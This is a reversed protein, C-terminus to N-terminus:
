IEEGPFFDWGIKRLPPSPLLKELSSTKKLVVHALDDLGTM